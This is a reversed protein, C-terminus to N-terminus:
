AVTSPRLNTWDFPFAARPSSLPAALNGRLKHVRATQHPLVSPCRVFHRHNHSVTIIAAATAGAGPCSILPDLKNGLVSIFDGM